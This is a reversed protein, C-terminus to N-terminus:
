TPGVRSVSFQFSPASPVFSPPLCFPVAIEPPPRSLSPLLFTPLASPKFCLGSSFFGSFASSFGAAALSATGPPLGLGASLLLLGSFGLPAPSAACGFPGPSPGLLGLGGAFLPSALFLGISGLSGLAGPTMGVPFCAASIMAARRFFFPSFVSGIAGSSVLKDTGVAFQVYRARADGIEHAILFGMRQRRGLCDRRMALRRVNVGSAFLTRTSENGAGRATAM